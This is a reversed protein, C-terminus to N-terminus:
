DQKVIKVTKAGTANSLKVMYTGAPQNSLDVEFHDSGVNGSIIMQGVVNFVAVDTGVSLGTITTINRTPNPFVSISEANDMEPIGVCNLYKVQQTVPLTPCGNNTGTLTYTTITSKTNSSLTAGTVSVQTGSKGSPIWTFTVGSTAQSSANLTVSQTGACAITPSASASVTSANTAVVAGIAIYGRDAQAPTGGSLGNIYFNPVTYSPVLPTFPYYTNSPTIQAMGILYPSAANLAFPPFFNFDVFTGQHGSAITITNTTALVNGTLDMVLGYLQGGISAADTSIGTRVATLSCASPPTMKWSYVGGPSAWGRSSSSFSTAPLPPIWAFDQCTVSQSWVWLNNTNVEDPDVSVTMNSLGLNTPLYPGFTVNTTSGAALNSVAVTQTYPNVGGINLQTSFSKAISSNNRIIANVSHGASFERSVKGYATMELIGIENTATNAAQFLISPRFLDLSMTTPAPGVSTFTYSGGTPTLNTTNCWYRAPLTSNPAASYWEWAVYIAGGTYTWPTTLPLITSTPNASIPIQYVGNYATSMTSIATPFNTGKNYTVDSTHEVYMTFQGVVLSSVGNLFTFGMGTVVSNTLALGTMENQKIYYCARHYVASASGSPAHLTSWSNDTYPAMITTQVQGEVSGALGMATLLALTIKKM